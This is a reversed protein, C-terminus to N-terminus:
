LAHKTPAFQLRSPLLFCNFFPPCSVFPQLKTAHTMKLRKFSCIESLMKNQFFSCESKWDYGHASFQCNGFFDDTVGYHSQKTYDHLAAFSQQLDGFCSSNEVNIPYFSFFFMVPDKLEFNYILFLLWRFSGSVDTKQHVRDKGCLKCTHLSFFRM